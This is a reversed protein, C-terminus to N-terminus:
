GARVPSLKPRCWEDHVQGLAGHTRAAKTGSSEASPADKPEADDPTAGSPVDPKEEFGPTEETM